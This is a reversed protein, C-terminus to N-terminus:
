EGKGAATLWALVDATSWVQTYVRALASLAAYHHEPVFTAVADEVVVVSYGRDSADRATNEVCMETAMGTLFLCDLGLNRLLQDIGTGNFPSSSNKDLVLESPLPALEDIVEHEFSGRSWLTPTGTSGLAEMDRRRRRPILDRGDPLLGGNRTFLVERGAERFAQLLRRTNPITMERIRPVYYHAIEPHREIVHATLGCAPNVSYNQYDIVLLACRGFDMEFAPWPFVWDPLTSASDVCRDSM